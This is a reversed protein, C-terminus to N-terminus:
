IEFQLSGRQAAPIAAICGGEDPVPPHEGTGVRKGDLTMVRREMRKVGAFRVTTERRIEGSWELTVRSAGSTCRIHTTGEDERFLYESGASPYVDLVLPALPGEYVRKARPGLPIIAGERVFLPIRELPVDPRLTQPGEIRSGNWYNFWTGGPIYANRRETRDCVPAALIWPGIMFELDKDVVNPDDPFAIPLARLLPIGTAAAEFATSYIYPLLRYRLNIFERVIGLARPGFRWPERPSDGHMRSHSCLLGFQAWRIFLEESPIGRYGGIDNSWFPIGSMGASLGGRITCALSDFDAAPDGSWCVPYRQNGATGSRSWVVGAGHEEETVEFVARNYLFPYLNHMTRGTAGNAFLADEPIDEGFDTKFVDVGMRLLPRHLDKFWACAAPSTLDIIAVRANWSNEPAAERVNGDPRPALSLGYDIVYPTGGRGKVFYGNATGTRFLDSEVSVYPHEWLCVKLGRRHLEGIFEAPRPFAEENWRFDCYHRWKMWWPDIHVVDAPIEHTSLGGALEEVSKRDRYTGGSSVWLGFTWRPPVPAHGTLDAYQRLIEAPAPGYLIYADFSEDEAIITGSQCSTTGMDWTIRSSSDLFLGYGKTSWLFPINKHSRESTSGFADQTWSIIKQGKKDLPTFKEGLGFLHEDPAIHFSETVCAVQGGAGAFGAPVVFPRGLGDIDGPNERWVNEGESGSFAVYWRKLGLTLSLRPGKLTLTEGSESGSLRIGGGPKMAIMPSPEHPTVGGPTIRYRWVSDTIAQFMVSATGSSATRVELTCTDNKVSWTCPGTLADFGPPANYPLPHARM